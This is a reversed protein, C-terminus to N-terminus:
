KFDSSIKLWIDIVLRRIILCMDMRISQLGVSGTSWIMMVNNISEVTYRYRTNSWRKERERDRDKSLRRRPHRRSGLHPVRREPREEKGGVEKDECSNRMTRLGGKGSWM